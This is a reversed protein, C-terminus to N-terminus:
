DGDDRASKIVEILDSPPPAGAARYIVRGNKGVIIVTRANRGGEPRLTGYTSAV